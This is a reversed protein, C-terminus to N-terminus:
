LNLDRVRPINLRWFVSLIQKILRKLYDFMQFSKQARPCFGVQQLLLCSAKLDLMYPYYVGSVVVPPLPYDGMEIFYKKFVRMLRVGHFHWFVSGSCPFRTANWPAMALEQSKLVHVDDGFIEPWVDLYKQDGFREAEVRNFCWELCKKEWWSRVAESKGRVFTMFQVCYQGSVASQDHEPAYAHDTILVHKGSEAFESFIAHPNKRFWLDADVYTVRNVTLDAEFVFRPAFPTLTWCYEGASREKKVELLKETELKSLQLLRVNTLDLQSLVDYTEDDICLVWLTYFNLHREMSQYLALGQPLFLSNYLTVFHEM